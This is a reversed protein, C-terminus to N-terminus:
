AGILRELTDDSWTNSRFPSQSGPAFAPEPPRLQPPPAVPKPLPLPLMGAGSAGDEYGLIRGRPDRFVGDEFRGLYDGKLTHLGRNAIFGRARGDLAYVVDRRRWAVTKGERDYIADM